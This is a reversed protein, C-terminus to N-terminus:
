GFFTWADAESVSWDTGGTAVWGESAGSAGGPSACCTVFESSGHAGSLCSALSWGASDGGTGAGLGEGQGSKDSDRRPVFGQRYVIKESEDDRAPATATPPRYKSWFRVSGDRGGSVM